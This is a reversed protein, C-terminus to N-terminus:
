SDKHYVYSLNLSNHVKFVAPNITQKHLTPIFSSCIFRDTPFWGKTRMAELLKEAGKPKLLYAHVGSMTNQLGWRDYGLYDHIGPESYHEYYNDSDGEMNRWASLYLLEDFQEEINDPLSRVQLADYEFCGITVDREYCIEWLRSHSAFNGAVGGRWHHKPRNAIYDNPVLGPDLFHIGRQALNVHAQDGFVGQVIHPNLNGFAKCIQFHQEATQKSARNELQTIFYSDIM